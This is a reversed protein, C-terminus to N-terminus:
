SESWERYARDILLCDLIAVAVMAEAVPIIRPVICPDHRGRVEITCQRGKVDVTQQSRAISSPPRVAVRLLMDGGTSIGGLIGGANNSSTRIEGCDVVYCDNFQSGRMRASEFGSGVELGKVAGISMLAHALKADIKDFVPDGLGPPVGQVRIEVVGGVSDDSERAEEIRAKM